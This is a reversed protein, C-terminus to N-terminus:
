SGVIRETAADYGAEIKAPEGSALLSRWKELLPELDDPHFSVKWGWGAAEGAFSRTTRGANTSSNTRATPGTVGHCCPIADITRRLQSDTRTEASFDNGAGHM